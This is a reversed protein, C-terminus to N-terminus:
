EAQSRRPKEVKWMGDQLLFVPIVLTNVSTNAYRAKLHNPTLVQFEPTLAQLAFVKKVQIM